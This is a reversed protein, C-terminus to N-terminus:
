LSIDGRSIVATGGPQYKSAKKRDKMNYSVTAKSSEFWKKCTQALTHPRRIKSWNINTEALGMVDLKNEVIVKRISDSKVSKNTYGLGNVNQFM